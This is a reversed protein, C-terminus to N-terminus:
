IHPGAVARCLARQLGLESRGRRTVLFRGDSARHRVLGGEALRALTITAGPYGRDDIEQAIEHLHRPQAVLMALVIPCLPVM